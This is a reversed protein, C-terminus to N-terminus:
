QFDKPNFENGCSCTVIGTAPDQGLDFRRDTGCAPCPVFTSKVDFRDIGMYLRSCGGDAWRIVLHSPPGPTALIVKGTSGIQAGPCSDVPEALLTVLDAPKANLMVPIAAPEDGKPGALLEYPQGGPGYTMGCAACTVYEGYEEDWVLRDVERNSCRPCASAEDVLDDETIPEFQDTGPVLFLSRGNDWDVGIQGMPGDTVTTVTGTSGIPLPDPDDPMALLRIRDGVKCGIYNDNSAM